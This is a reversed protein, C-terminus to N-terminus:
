EIEAAIDDFTAALELDTGDPFVGFLFHLDVADGEPAVGALTDSAGAARITIQEPSADLDVDVWQSAPITVGSVTPDPAAAPHEYTVVIPGDTERSLTFGSLYGAASHFDFGALEVRTPSPEVKVRFVVHFHPSGTIARAHAIRAPTHSAVGLARSAPSGAVVFSFATSDGDFSWGHQVLDGPTAIVGDEFTECFLWARSSCLAAGTAGDGGGADPGAAGPGADTVAGSTPEAGFSSCAALVPVVLLTLSKRM